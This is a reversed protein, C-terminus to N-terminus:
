GMYVLSFGEFDHWKAEDRGGGKRRKKLNWDSLARVEREGGVIGQGLITRVVVEAQIWTRRWLHINYM